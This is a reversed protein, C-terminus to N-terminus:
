QADRLLSIGIAILVPRAGRGRRSGERSCLTTSPSLAGRRVELSRTSKAVAPSATTEEVHRGSSVGESLRPDQRLAVAPSAPAGSGARPPDDRQQATLDRDLSREALPGTGRRAERAPRPWRPPRARPTHQPIQGLTAPWSDGAPTGHDSAESPSAGLRPPRTERAHLAAPRIPELLWRLRPSRGEM